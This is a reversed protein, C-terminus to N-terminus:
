VKLNRKVMALAVTMISEFAITRSVATDQAIAPNMIELGYNFCAYNFRMLEPYNCPSFYIHASNMLSLMKSNILIKLSESHNNLLQEM